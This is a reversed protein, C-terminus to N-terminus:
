LEAGMAELLRPYAARAHARVEAEPLTDYPYPLVALRLGPRGAEASLVKALSEFHATCIATTPLGLAAATLADRVSWSTCSGCNALGSIAMDATALLGEYEAQARDYEDGVLGQVRRWKIVRAGAKELEREWENVTWDFSPWLVDHRIAITKGVLPGAAPGPDAVGQEPPVGCPDLVTVIGSTPAPDRLETRPDHVRLEIPRGLNQNLASVFSERLRDPPLVCEACEADAFDLSLEIATREVDIARVHISIGDSAVMAALDDIATRLENSDPNAM